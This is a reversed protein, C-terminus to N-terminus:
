LRCGAARKIRGQPNGNPSPRVRARETGRSGPAAAIIRHGWHGNQRFHHQASLLHPITWVHFGSAKQWLQPVEGACRWRRGVERGRDVREILRIGFHHDSSIDRSELRPAARGPRAIGAPYPTATNAGREPPM